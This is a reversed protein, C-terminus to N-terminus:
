WVLVPNGKPDRQLWGPHERAIQGSQFEPALGLAMVSTYLMIRYGAARYAALGAKFQGESLKDAPAAITNHSDPPQVILANFGFERKLRTPRDKIDTLAVFASHGYPQLINAERLWKEQSPPSAALPLDPPVPAIAASSGSPPSEAHASSRISWCF